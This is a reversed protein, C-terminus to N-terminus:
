LKSASYVTAGDPDPQKVREVTEDNFTEITVTFRKGPKPQTVAFSSSTLVFRKMSAEGACASLASIAGGVARPIVAHADNSLTMDNAVRIFGIAGKVAQDFAGATGMDPVEALEFNDKGYREQFLAATWSDRTKSRTTGRVRFGASLAQDAVHSGIYGTVGSVVVLSGYSIAPNQIGPITM